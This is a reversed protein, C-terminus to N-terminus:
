KKIRLHKYVIPSNMTCQINRVWNCWVFFSILSAEKTKDHEKYHLVDKLKKLSSSQM